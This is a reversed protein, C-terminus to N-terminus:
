RNIIYIILLIAFYIRISIINNKYGIIAFM